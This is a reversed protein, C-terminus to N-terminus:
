AFNLRANAAQLPDQTWRIRGYGLRRADDRQALKLAEGVSKGRSAEQVALLRSSLYPGSADLGAMGYAFGVLTAREFAGLLSGGWRVAALLENKPVIERESYGWGEAQLDECARLEDASSLPRIALRPSMDRRAKGRARRAAGPARDPGREAGR